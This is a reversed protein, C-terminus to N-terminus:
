VSDPRAQDVQARGRRRWLLVGTWLMWIWLVPVAVQLASAVQAYSPASFFLGDVALLVGALVGLGCLVRPFVRSLLMAVSLALASVGVTGWLLAEVASAVTDLATVLAADAGHDAAVAAGSVLASSILEFTVGVTMALVGFAALPHDAGSSVLAHRVAVAYLVRGLLVVSFWGAAWSFSDGNGLYGHLVTAPKTGAPFWVDIGGAAIIAVWETFYLLAGILAFRNGVLRPPAGARVERSITQATM